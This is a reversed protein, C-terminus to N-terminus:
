TRRPGVLGFATQQPDRANLTFEGGPIEHPGHLITGGGDTVAKVARDIDDVGIYVSWRSASQHAMTPMIAGITVGHHQLFRYKGLEGMDMDGQQDWGFHRAYFAVAADPDSTALENWRVHQSQDVSFVDSSEDRQGAPPAPTMVYFPAGQPDTVMAMRGVGAMDLTPMLVRGGDAEIAAISADVDDVSIYGIWSPRAGKQQMAADLGIMGGSNGGNRRKIMRYDTGGPMASVADIAWGVVADYFAKSADPDPSMLEYWIFSGQPNTM